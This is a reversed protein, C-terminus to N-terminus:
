FNGKTHFYLAESLKSVETMDLDDVTQIGLFGSTVPVHYFDESNKFPQYAIFIDADNLIINKVVAIKGGVRV